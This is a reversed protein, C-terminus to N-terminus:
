TPDGQAGASRPPSGGAPTRDNRGTDFAALNIALRQLAILTMANGVRGDACSAMAGRPPLVIDRIDAGEEVLGALIQVVWPLFRSACGGIRFQEVLLVTERALDFLLVGAAAGRALLDREVIDTESQMAIKETADAGRSHPSFM